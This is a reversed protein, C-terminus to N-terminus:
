RPFYTYRCSAVGSKCRAWLIVGDELGLRQSERPLILLAPHLVYLASPPVPDDPYSFALQISADEDSAREEPTPEVQRRPAGENHVCVMSSNGLWGTDLRTWAESIRLKRSYPDHETEL